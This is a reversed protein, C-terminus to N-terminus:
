CTSRLLCAPLCALCIGSVQLVTLQYLVLRSYSHVGRSVATCPFFHCLSFLSVAMLTSGRFTLKHYPWVTSFTVLGYMSFLSVATWSFLSVTTCPFFLCPRVSFFVRGYLFFYSVASCSFIHYPRLPFFASVATCNHRLQAISSCHGM